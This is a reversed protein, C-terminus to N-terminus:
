STVTEMTTPQDTVNGSDNDLQRWERVLVDIERGGEKTAIEANPSEGVIPRLERSIKVCLNNATPIAEEGPTPSSVLLTVHYM